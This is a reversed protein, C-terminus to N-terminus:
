GYGGCAKWPKGAELQLMNYMITCVNICYQETGCPVFCYQLQKCYLVIFCLLVCYVILHLLLSVVYQLICCPVIFLSHLYLVIFLSIFKFIFLPKCYVIHYLICYSCESIIYLLIYYVIGHLSIHYVNNNCLSFYYMIMILVINCMFLITCHM